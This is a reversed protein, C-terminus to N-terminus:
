IKKNNNSTSKNCTWLILSADVMEKNFSLLQSPVPDSPGLLTFAGVQIGGSLDPKASHNGNATPVEVRVERIVEVPVEVKIERIVEVIKPEPPPLPESKAATFVANRAKETENCVADDVGLAKMVRLITDLYRFRDAPTFEPGDVSEHSLLNRLNKIEHLHTRLVAPLDAAYSLEAWNRDFVSDAIM